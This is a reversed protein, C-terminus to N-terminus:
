PVSGMEGASRGMFETQVCCLSGPPVLMRGRNVRRFRFLVIKPQPLRKGPYAEVTEGSGAPKLM